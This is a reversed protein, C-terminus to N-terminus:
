LLVYALGVAALGILSAAVAISSIRSAQKLECLDADSVDPQKAVAQLRLWVVALIVCGVLAAVGFFVLAPGMLLCVGWRASSSEQDESEDDWQNTRLLTLDGGSRSM